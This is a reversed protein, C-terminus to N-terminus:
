DAGLVSEVAIAVKEEGEGSQGLVTGMFAGVHGHAQVLLAEFCRGATILVFFDNHSTALGLAVYPMVGDVTLMAVSAFEINIAFEYAAIFLHGDKSFDELISGGVTPYATSGEPAVFVKSLGVDVIESDIGIGDAILFHFLQHLM